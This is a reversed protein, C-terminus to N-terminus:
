FERLFIEKYKKGLPSDVYITDIHRMNKVEVKKVLINEKV